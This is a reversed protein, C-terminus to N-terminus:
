ASGHGHDVGAVAEDDGQVQGADGGGFGHHGPQAIRHAEVLDAHLQGIAPPKAEGALQDRGALLDKKVELQVVDGVGDGLGGFLDGSEARGEQGDVGIGLGHLRRTSRQAARGHLQQRDRDHGRIVVGVEGLRAEGEPDLFHHRPAGPLGLRGADMAENQRCLFSRLHPRQDAGVHKQDRRADTHGGVGHAVLLAHHGRGAGDRRAGVM